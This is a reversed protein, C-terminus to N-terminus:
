SNNQNNQTVAFLLEDDDWVSQKKPKKSKESKSKNKTDKGLFADEKGFSSFAPAGYFKTEGQYQNSTSKQWMNSDFNTVSSNQEALKDLPWVDGMNHSKRRNSNHSKSTDWVLNGFSPADDSVKNKDGFIDQNYATESNTIEDDM